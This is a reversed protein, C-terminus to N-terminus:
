KWSRLHVTEDGAMEFNLAFQFEGPVKSVKVLVTNRGQKLFAPVTMEELVKHPRHNQDEFVLRGNLWVKTADQVRLSLVVDQRRDAHLETYAYATGHDFRPYYEYIPTTADQLNVLHRDRARSYWRRWQISRYWGPYVADLDIADEPPYATNHGSDGWNPFMGMVMWMRVADSGERRLWDAAKQSIPLADESPVSRRSFHKLMNVFLRDAVPDKGLNELVRLHTFVMRGAGFGRVLIDSGWWITEGMMYNGSAIPTTDFTGCIDEDTAEVFTQPPVIDRYVQRMFDRAPLGEFVPHLKVYHYMGLFAGVADKSTARIAEDIQDAFDNWDEPPAFVLAVAGNRVQALVHTLEHEPYARVTNAIPPVIHVPAEATGEKALATCQRRWDDHPDVVHIEVDCPAPRQVVHLEVSSESLRKVGQMLRVVFKHTGPSGSASIKGAWVEKTGRPVRINRKKKWLVQNTPGVVQLSLDARTDLREENAICVTVAVEERPALNTRALQILPRLPQQVDKMTDFVPKPRRWRDLVGACFEHGADCLQTYCYGGLKTNSRMADIQHRVADCQLERAAATFGSFSGFVRDLGREQFGQHAADLMNQLFRADKLKDKDEGYQAIVDELDEMGGFGFESLFVLQDPDGSHRYYQEIEHDVPARQYIHLDDYPEFEDHYPRIFRAPERTANIGGSDDIIVRSPDLSRALRCLDDKVLQAGGNVVYGANGSENLMGWIVVSPHNRDRLIMERVERECREKLWPSDKIWGIPPEEYLLIGIEDALDLTIRPATKIHLRIMNFGAAKALELERRALEESEPAVLSRAYDPQHLVGRVLIPRHNLHFRNDKVTFERMGFRVAMHDVVEGNQVLDCSLTYLTPEEPSWLEHDPFEVSLSGCPGEAEVPTGEIRLRVDAQESATATVSIRKRRIDPRVFVDTLHAPPKGVIRVSGWLGAFTFYGHEKACPITKPKFDEYGDADHPDILRVALRNAGDIVAAKTADLAFPTYGGEHSGLCEGNLWVEVFYDAAEFELHIVRGDWEGGLEFERFYWGVGDYDPVWLDWVSPVRVAMAEPLDKGDFWRSKKGVDDPDLVLRWEGDLCQEVRMVGVSHKKSPSVNRAVPGAGM